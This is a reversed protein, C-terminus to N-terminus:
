SFFILFITILVAGGFISSLIEKFSTALVADPLGLVCAVALVTALTWIIAITLYPSEFAKALGGSKRARVPM